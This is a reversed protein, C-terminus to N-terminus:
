TYGTAPVESEGQGRPDFALTRYRRSFAQIQNRWITAPMTWGPILAVTLNQKGPSNQGADFFSLKVGDSTQFFRRSLQAADSSTAMILLVLGFCFRRSM